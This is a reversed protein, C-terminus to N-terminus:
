ATPLRGTPIGLQRAWKVIVAGSVPTGTESLKAAIADFSLGEERWAVIKEELTNGTEVSKLKFLDSPM